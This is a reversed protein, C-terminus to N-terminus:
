KDSQSFKEEEWKLFSLVINEVWTKFEDHDKFKVVDEKSYKLKYIKGGRPDVKKNAKEKLENIIKKDVNCSIILQIEVVGHSIYAVYNYPDGGREEVNQNIKLEKERFYNDLTKTFFRNQKLDNPVIIDDTSMRKIIRMTEETCEKASKFIGYSFSKRGMRSEEKKGIATSNKMIKVYEAFNKDDVVKRLEKLFRIENDNRDSKGDELDNASERKILDNGDEDDAENNDEENGGVSLGTKKDFGEIDSIEGNEILELIEKFLKEYKIKLCLVGFLIQKSLSNKFSDKKLYHYLIFQNLLRIIARPNYGISEQVLGSYVSYDAAGIANGSQKDKKEIFTSIQYKECPINYPVQIIKDFFREGKEQIEEKDDNSDNGFKAKIGRKVIDFDIAYIFVCGEFDLYNKIVEMLEVAKVPELRDLDDVVVVLKRGNLSKNVEDKIKQKLGVFTIDAKQWEDVTEGTIKVDLLGKAFYNVATAAGFVATKVIKKLLENDAGISIEKMIKEFFSLSLVDKKNLQSEEWANFWVVKVKNEGLSEEIKKVVLSMFLTKGAGWDGQISISMPTESNIMFSAVGYAEDMIGLSEDNTIVDAIGRYNVEENNKNLENM